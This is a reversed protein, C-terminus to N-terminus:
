LVGYFLAVIMGYGDVVGVFTDDCVWRNWSAIWPEFLWLRRRGSPWMFVGLVEDEFRRLGWFGLSM